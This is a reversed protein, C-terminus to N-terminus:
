TGGGSRFAGIGAAPHRPTLLLPSRHPFCEEGVGVGRESHQALGEGGDEDGFTPHRMLRELNTNMVIDDRGSYQRWMLDPCRDALIRVVHSLIDERPTDFSKVQNVRGAENRTIATRATSAM